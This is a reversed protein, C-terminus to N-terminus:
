SLCYYIISLFIYYNMLKYICILFNLVSISFHIMIHKLIDLEYTLNMLSINIRLSLYYLIYLCMHSMLKYSQFHVNCIHLSILNYQIQLKQYHYNSISLMIYNMSLLQIHNNCMILYCICKHLMRHIISIHHLHFCIIHQNM